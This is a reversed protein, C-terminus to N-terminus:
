LRLFLYKKVLFVCHQNDRKVVSLYEGVSKKINGTQQYMVALNYRAKIDGPNNKLYSELKKISNQKDGKTFSELLSHVYDYNIIKKIM